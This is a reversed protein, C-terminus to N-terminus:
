KVDDIQIVGYMLQYPPWVVWYMPQIHWKDILSSAVGFFEELEKENLDQLEDETTSPELLEATYKEFEQQTFDYGAGKVIQSCEDKSKVGQMQTRFAEDSALREYFAKVHELSM